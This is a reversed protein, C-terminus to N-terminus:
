SSGGSYDYVKPPIPDHPLNNINIRLPDQEDSWKSQANFASDEIAEYYTEAPPNYAQGSSDTSIMHRIKGQTDYKYFRSHCRQFDHKAILYVFRGDAINTPVDATTKIEFTVKSSHKATGSFTLLGELGKVDVTASLDYGDETSTATEVTIKNYTANRLGKYVIPIGDGGIMPAFVTYTSLEDDTVKEIPDHLTLHYYATASAQDGNDKVACSIDYKQAGTAKGTYKGAIGSLQPSGVKTYGAVHQENKEAITDIGATNWTSTVNYPFTANKPTWGTSYDAKIDVFNRYGPILSSTNNASYISDGYTHWGGDKLEVRDQGNRTLKISRTDEVYNISVGGSATTGNTWPYFSGDEPYFFGGDTVDCTM